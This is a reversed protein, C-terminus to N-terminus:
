PNRGPELVAAGFLKQRGGLDLGEADPLRCGHILYITTASLCCIVFMVHVINM